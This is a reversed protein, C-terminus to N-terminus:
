VEAVVDRPVIDRLLGLRARADANGTADIRAFVSTERFLRSARRLDFRPDEGSVVWQDLWFLHKDIWCQALDKAGEESYKAVAYSSSKQLSYHQLMRAAIGPKARTSFCDFAVGKKAATWNGGRIIMEFQPIDDGPCRDDLELRRRYLEEVLGELDFDDMDGEVVNDGGKALKKKSASAKVFCDDEHSPHEWFNVLRPDDVWSKEPVPMAAEDASAVSASRSAFPDLMSVMEELREFESTSALIGGAMATVETMVLIYECEWFAPEDSFALSLDRIAFQSTHEVKAGAQWSAMVLAPATTELREVEVFCGFIPNQSAYVFAVYKVEGLKVVKFISGRLLARHRAVAAMWWPHWM